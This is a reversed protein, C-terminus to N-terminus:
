IIPLHEQIVNAMDLSIMKTTKLINTKNKKQEKRNAM